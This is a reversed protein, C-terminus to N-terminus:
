NYDAQPFKSRSYIPIPVFSRVCHSRTQPGSVQAPNCLQYGAVGLDLRSGPYMLALVSGSYTQM